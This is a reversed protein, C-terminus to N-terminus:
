DNTDAAELVRAMVDCLDNLLTLAGPDGQEMLQRIHQSIFFEQEIADAVGPSRATLAALAQRAQIMSKQVMVLLQAIGLGDVSGNEGTGPLTDLGVSPSEISREVVALKLSLANCLLERYRQTQDATLHQTIGQICSLDLKNFTERLRELLEIDGQLKALHNQFLTQSPSVGDMGSQKGDSPTSM